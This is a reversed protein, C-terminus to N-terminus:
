TVVNIIVLKKVFYELETYRKEVLAFIYISTLMWKKLFLIIFFAISTRSDVTLQNLFGAPSSSHRILSPASGGDGGGGGGGVGGGGGKLSSATSFDAVPMESLAYSRQLMAASDGGRADKHNPPPAVKCTSESSSDGTFYQHSMIHHSGLPSFERDTSALSDVASTLLSGPASGYRILGSSPMPRHSSSSASSPYM